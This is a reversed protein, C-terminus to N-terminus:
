NTLEEAQVRRLKVNSSSVLLILDDSKICLLSTGGAFVCYPHAKQIMLFVM